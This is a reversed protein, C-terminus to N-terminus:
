NANVKDYRAKDAEMVRALASCKQPDDANSKACLQYAALSQEYSTVAYDEAAEQKAVKASNCAALSAAALLVLIARRM